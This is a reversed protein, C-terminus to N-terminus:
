ECQRKQGPKLELSYQSGKSVARLKDMCSDWRNAYQWNERGQQTGIDIEHELSNAHLIYGPIRHIALNTLAVRVMQLDNDVGFLRGRPAVKHASMLLRGSGVAPDLINVPKDTETITMRAMLDGVEKPTLFQGRKKAEGPSLMKELYMEGLHDDYDSSLLKSDYLQMLSDTLSTNEFLWGLRSQLDSYLWMANSIALFEVLHDWAKRSDRFEEDILDYMKELMTRVKPNM